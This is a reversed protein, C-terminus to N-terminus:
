LASSFTRSIRCGAFANIKLPLRRLSRAINEEWLASVQEQVVLSFSLSGSCSIM